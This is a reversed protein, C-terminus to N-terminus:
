NAKTQNDANKETKRGINPPHMSILFTKAPCESVTRHHGPCPKNRLVYVWYVYWYPSMRDHLCGRLGFLVFHRLLGQKRKPNTQLSSWFTIIKKMLMSMIDFLPQQIDNEEVLKHLGHAQAHRQEFSLNGAVYRFQSFLFREEDVGVSSLYHSIIHWVCKWNTGHKITVTMRMCPPACLRVWEIGCVTILNNNM